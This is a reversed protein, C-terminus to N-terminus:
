GRGRVNRDVWMQFSPDYKNHFNIKPQPIGKIAGVVKDLKRNNEKFLGALENQGYSFNTVKDTQTTSINSIFSNYDPLVMDKASLYTLTSVNPTKQITGDERVIAESRGGDGVIAMGEYNDTKGDKYKPIPVAIATALEIAGIAGIIAAIAPYQPEGLFKLASVEALATAAIINAINVAKDFQAKKIDWQKQQEDYKKKDAAQKAQTRATAAARDQESLSSNQINALDRAYNDDKIKQLYELKNKQYDISGDFIAQASSVVSRALDIELGALTKKAELTRKASVDAQQALLGDLKIQNDKYDVQDAKKQKILDREKSIESELREDQFKEETNKREREYKQVSMGKQQLSNNLDVVDKSYTDSNDVDNARTSQIFKYFNELEAMKEAGASKYIEVIRKQSADANSVLKASVEADLKAYEQPLADRQKFLFKQHAYDDEILKRENASYDKEANLRKELNEFQDSFREQDFKNQLNLYVANKDKVAELRRNLYSLNIADVEKEGNEEASKVAAYYSQIAGIRDSKNSSPNSLVNTQEAEAIAKAAAVNSRVAELRQNLTSREDALILSNKNKILEQEFKASELAIKRREDANFKAEEIRTADVARQDNAEKELVDHQLDRQATAADLEAQAVERQSKMDKIFPNLTKMFNLPKPNMDMEAQKKQADLIEKSFNAVKERAKDYVELTKNYQDLTIQTTEKIVSSNFKDFDAIKKKIVFLKEQSQGSKEANSLENELSRRRIEDIYKYGEVEKKAQETVEKQAEATAKIAEQTSKEINVLDYLYKITLGIAAALAIFATLTGFSITELLTLLGAAAEEESAALATNSATLEANAATAGETAAIGGAKSAANQEQAVTNGELAVTNEEIVATNGKEAGDEIFLKAGGQDEDLVPSPARRKKQRKSQNADDKAEAAEKGRFFQALAQFSHELVIRFQDAEQAGLGLAEGLLKVPGRMGRLTNAYGTFASSYNGVNDGYRGIDQNLDDLVAKTALVDNKAQVTLPHNKGQTLYLNAYSVEQDKLAKTLIAREDTMDKTAKADDKSMGLQQAAQEKAAKNAEQLQLKYGQLSVNNSSNAKELAKKAAELEKTSVIAVRAAKSEEIYSASIGGHAAAYEKATLIGQVQAKNVDNVVSGTTNGQTPEKVSGDPSLNTTFPVSSANSTKELAKATKNAQDEKLKQTKIAEQEAKEQQQILKIEEQQTKLKAQIAKENAIASKTFEDQAKTADKYAVSSQNTAAVIDKANTAITINAKTASLDDKAKKLIALQDLFSQTEAKIAALDIYSNLLESM